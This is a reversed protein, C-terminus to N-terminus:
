IFYIRNVEEWITTKFLIKNWQEIQSVVILHM